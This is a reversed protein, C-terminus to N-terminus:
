RALRAGRYEADGITAKGQGVLAIRGPKLSPLFFDIALEDDVYIEVMDEVVVLRLEHSRSPDLLCQRTTLVDGGSSKLQVMGQPGKSSSVVATYGKGDEGIGFGIGAEGEDIRLKTRIMYTRDTKPIDGLLKSAPSQSTQLVANRLRRPSEFACDCGSWYCPLLGRMPHAVLKVPWALRGRGPTGECRTFLMLREGNRLVSRASFGQWIGNKSALLLNDKMEHFPGEPRDARFVITGATIKADSWRKSQGYVDGTLATMYWKGDLEFVDPVEFCNFRNPTCCPEGVDWHLLDKSRCLAICISHFADSQGKRRMVVYGLWGKGSPDNTVALDRCDTDNQAHHPFTAPPDKATYYVKPDPNIIPNGSYKDFTRGGNRSTALCMAERHRPWGPVASNGCYYLYFVGKDAVACGTYLLGDDYQTPGPTGRYVVTPMETWHILDKSVAHGITGEERDPRSSGPRKVQLHFLHTTDGDQLYWTDWVYM